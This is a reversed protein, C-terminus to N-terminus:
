EAEILRRIEADPVRTCEGYNGLGPPMGTSIIEVPRGPRFVAAMQQAGTYGGFSNRANLSFMITWRVPIGDRLKVKMAPYCVAFNTVSGADILYDRLAHAIAPLTHERSMEPYSTLDAPQASNAAFPVALLVMSLM